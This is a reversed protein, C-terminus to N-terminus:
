VYRKPVRAIFIYGFTKQPNGGPWDKETLKYEMIDYFGNKALLKRYNYARYGSKFWLWQRRWWSKHHLECFVVHNRTVRRIEHIYKSIKTPGVYILTMDTLTVDTSKDSLLLDEGSSVKFLGNILYRQAIEIAEPNVDFGGLQRGPFHKIINVLNAGGGCGIEMLSLWPFMRLIASIVFRHPHNWTDLYDKKWDVKRNAWWRSWQKTSKNHGLFNM